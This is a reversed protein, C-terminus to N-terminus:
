ARGVGTCEPFGLSPPALGPVGSQHPLLTPVCPRDETGHPLLRIRSDQGENGLRPSQPGSIPLPRALGSPCTQRPERLTNSLAQLGAKHASSSGQKQGQPFQPGPLHSTACSQSWPWGARAQMRLWKELPRTSAIPEMKHTPLCAWSPSCGLLFNPLGGPPGALGVAGMRYLLHLRLRQHGQADDVARRDGRGDDAPGM